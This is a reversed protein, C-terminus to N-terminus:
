SYTKWSDDSLLERQRYHEALQSLTLSGTPLRPDDPNIELLIGRVASRAEFVNPYQDVTGIVIRRYIATGNSRDRWRYEWVNQGNRRGSQLLSGKRMASRKTGRRTAGPDVMMKFLGRFAFPKAQSVAFHFRM